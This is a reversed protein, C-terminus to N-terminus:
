RTEMTARQRRAIEALMAEFHRRLWRTVFAQGFMADVIGPTGPAFEFRADYDVRAAIQPGPVPTVLYRGSFSQLTAEEGAIQGPESRALVRTPPEHDVVLRVRVPISWFLMRFVGVHEVVLREGDRAVVRSTEIDPVFERLREYDTLTAWAVSPAAEVVASAHVVYAAGDRRVEIASAAALASGNL